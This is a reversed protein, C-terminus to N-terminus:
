IESLTKRNEENKDIYTLAMLGALIFSAHFTVWFNNYSFLRPSPAAAAIYSLSLITMVQLFEPHSLSQRDYRDGTGSVNPLLTM